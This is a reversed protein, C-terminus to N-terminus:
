PGRGIKPPGPNGRNVWWLATSGALLAGWPGAVWIPWFHPADGSSATVAVWIIVNIMVATAWTIWAARLPLPLSARFGGASPPPSPAPLRATSGTAPAPPSRRAPPPILGSAPLDLVLADLDAYTKAGYAQDLRGYFEDADLRGEAHASRLRELTEEREADGIRLNPRREPEM